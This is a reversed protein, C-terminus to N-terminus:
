RGGRSCDATAASSPSSVAVVAAAATRGGKGSGGTRGGVNGAAGDVGGRANIWRGSRSRSRSRGRSRSSGSSNNNSARASPAVHTRFYDELSSDSIAADDDDGDDTDDEDDADADSDNHHRLPPTPPPRFPYSIEEEEKEADADGGKRIRVAAARLSYDLAAIHDKNNNAAAKISSQHHSTAPSTVNSTHNININVPSNVKSINRSATTSGTNTIKSGNVNDAYTSTATRTRIGLRHFFWKLLPKLTPICAAVIGLTTEVHSWFPILAWRRDLSFMLNTTHDIRFCVNPHNPVHTPTTASTHTSATYQHHPLLTAYWSTDRVLWQRQDDYSQTLHVSRVISAGVPIVGTLFIIVIGVKQKIHIQLKYILPMPLALLIIDTFANLYSTIMVWLGINICGNPRLQVEWYRHVPKCQGIQVAVNVILRIIVFLIVTWVCRRCENGFTTAGRMMRLILCCVSIQITFITFFSVIQFIWRYMQTKNLQELSLESAHNGWGYEVQALMMATEVACLLMAVLIFYDDWGRVGSIKCRIYLRTM